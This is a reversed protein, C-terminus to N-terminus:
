VKQALPMLWQRLEPIDRQVTEWVVDWDVSFYGHAVRSRWQRLMVRQFTVSVGNMSRTSVVFCFPSYTSKHLVLNIYNTSKFFSYQEYAM